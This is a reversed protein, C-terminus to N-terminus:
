HFSRSEHSQEREALPSFVVDGRKGGKKMYAVHAPVAGHGVSPVGDGECVGGGEGDRVRFVFSVTKARGSGGGLGVWDGVGPRAAGRAIGTGRAGERLSAVAGRSERMETTEVTVFVPM